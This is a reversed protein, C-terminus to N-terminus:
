DWILLTITRTQGTTAMSVSCNTKKTQLVTAGLLSLLNKISSLVPLKQKIIKIFEGNDTAIRTFRHDYQSPTMESFTGTPSSAMRCKNYDGSKDNFCLVVKSNAVNVCDGDKHGSALQGIPELRCSTM